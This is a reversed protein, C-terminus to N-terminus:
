AAALASGHWHQRPDRRLQQLAAARPALDQVQYSVGRKNDPWAFREILRLDALEAMARTVVSRSVKAAAAIAEITVPRDRDLELALCADYVRFAGPKLTRLIGLRRAYILQSEAWTPHM